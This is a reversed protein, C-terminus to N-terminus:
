SGNVYASCLFTDSGVSSRKSTHLSPICTKGVVGTLCILAASPNKFMDLRKRVSPYYFTASSALPVAAVSKSQGITNATKTPSFKFIWQTIPGSFGLCLMLICLCATANSFMKNITTLLVVMELAVFSGLMAAQLLWLKATIVKTAVNHLTLKIDSNFLLVTANESTSIEQALRNKPCSTLIGVWQALVFTLSMGAIYVGGGWIFCKPIMTRNWELSMAFSFVMIMQSEKSACEILVAVSYVVLGCIFVLYANINQAHKSVSSNSLLLAVMVFFFLASGIAITWMMAIEMTYVHLTSSGNYTLVIVGKIGFVLMGVLLLTFGHNIVYFSGTETLRTSM